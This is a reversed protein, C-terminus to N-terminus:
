RGGTAITLTVGGAPVGGQTVSVNFRGVLGAEDPADVILEVDRFVEGTAFRFTSPEVRAPWVAPKGHFATQPDFDKGVRDAFEYSDVTIEVPNCDVARPGPDGGKLRQRKAWAYVLEGVLGIIALVVYGAVALGLAALVPRTEHPHATGLFVGGVLGLVAWGALIRHPRIWPGGGERVTPCGEPYQNFVRIPRRVESHAAHVQTNNWGLNNSPNGDNAHQLEVEICYHGPIAPTRWKVSVISTGPWVPVSTTVTAIPHKITGGAGFEAYRVFVQTGAAVKERSSNHVTISVDYETDATLNYTDQEIAGLLIRVDPNDWTVPQGLRMLLFQSYICPDPKHAVHGPITVCPDGRKPRKRCFIERWKRCRDRRTTLRSFGGHTLYRREM